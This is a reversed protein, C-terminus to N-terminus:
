RVDDQRLALGVSVGLSPAVEDLYHQDFKNSPLM